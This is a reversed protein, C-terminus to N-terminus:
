PAHPLSAVYLEFLHEAIVTSTSQVDSSSHAHDDPAHAMLVAATTTCRVAAFHAGRVPFVAQAHRPVLSWVFTVEPFVVTTFVVLVPKM